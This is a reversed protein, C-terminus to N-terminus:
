GGRRHTPRDVHEGGDLRTHVLAPHADAGGALRGHGDLRQVSAVPDRCLDSACCERSSRGAAREVRSGKTPTDPTESRSATGSWRLAALSGPASCPTRVS